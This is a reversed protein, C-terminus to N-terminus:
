HVVGVHDATGVQPRAGTLGLGATPLVDGQLDHVHHFAFAENSSYTSQNLKLSKIKSRSASMNPQRHINLSWFKAGSRSM